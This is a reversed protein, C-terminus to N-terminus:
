FGWNILSYKKGHVELAGIKSEAAALRSFVIGEDQGSIFLSKRSFVDDRWRPNCTQANATAIIKRKEKDTWEEGNKLPNGKNINNTALNVGNKNFGQVSCDFCLGFNLDEEKLKFQDFLNLARKWYINEAIKKQINQCESYNGLNSFGQRWPSHVINNTQIKLGWEKFSDLKKTDKYIKIQKRIELVLDQFSKDLITPFNDEMELLLNALEGYKLTFGIIGFTLIADDFNGVIRNFGTGEFSATLQLSREFISPWQKGLLNEWVESDIYTKTKSFKKVANSTNRGYIGDIKDDYLNKNKLEKQCELILEGSCGVDFKAISIKTSSIQQKELISNAMIIANPVNLTGNGQFDSSVGIIEVAGENLSKKIIDPTVKQPDIQKILAAAGAVHPCSMSTGSKYSYQNINKLSYIQEGPACLGRKMEPGHNSFYSIKNFENHSAVPFVEPFLSPYNLGSNENGTAACIFINEDFADKIANHFIKSYSGGGGLSMSIIDIKQQTAFVLGEILDSLDGEGTDSLVKIPMIKCKPAVGYINNITNNYNYSAVSGSVHNGHSNGDTTNTTPNGPGVCNLGPLLNSVIDEHPLSGTDLIAVKIGSGDFSFRWAEKADINLIGWLKPNIKFDSYNNGLKYKELDVHPFESNTLSNKNLKAKRSFFFKMWNWINSSITIPEEAIKFKQNEEIVVGEKKAFGNIIDVNNIELVSIKSRPTEIEKKINTGDSSCIKFLEEKRHAFSEKDIEVLYTKPEALM